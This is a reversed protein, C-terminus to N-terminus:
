HHCLLTSEIGIPLGPDKNQTIRSEEVVRSDCSCIYRAFFVFQAVVALIPTFHLYPTFSQGSLSFAQVGHAAECLRILAGRALSCFIFEPLIELWIPYMSSVSIKTGTRRFAMAKGGVRM